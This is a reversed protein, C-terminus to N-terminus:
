PRKEEDDVLGKKLNDTSDLSSTSDSTFVRIFDDPYKKFYYVSYFFACFVFFSAIYFALAPFHIGVDDNTALAFVGAFFFTGLMQSFMTFSVVGAQVEAMKEPAVNKSLMSWLAPFGMMLVGCLFGFFLFIILIPAIAGGLLAVAAFLFSASIVKREGYKKTLPSALITSLFGMIMFLFAALVYETMTANYREKMYFFLIANFSAACFTVVMYMLLTGGLLETSSFLSLTGVPNANKWLFPKRNAKLLTEKFLGFFWLTDLIFLVCAIIIPLRVSAGSDILIAGVFAGAMGIGNAFIQFIAYFKPRDQPESVDSISAQTSPYFSGLMGQVFAGVFILFLMAKAVTIAATFSWIVVGVVSLVVFRKRGWRDAGCGLAPLFLFQVLLNFATLGGYVISATSSDGVIENILAPLTMLFMMNAFSYWFGGFLLRGIKKFVARTSIVHVDSDGEVDQTDQSSSSSPSSVTPRKPSPPYVPDNDM